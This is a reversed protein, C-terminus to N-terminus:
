KGEAEEKEKKEKEKREKEAKELAECRTCTALIPSNISNITLKCDATGKANCPYEKQDYRHIHRGSM